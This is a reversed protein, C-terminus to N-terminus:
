ERTFYRPAHDAVSCSKGFYMVALAQGQKVEGLFVPKLSKRRNHTYLCGRRILASRSNRCVNDDLVTCWWIM